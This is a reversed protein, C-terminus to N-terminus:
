PERLLLYVHLHSCGAKLMEAAKHAVDPIHALQEAHVFRFGLRGLEQLRWDEVCAPAESEQNKTM